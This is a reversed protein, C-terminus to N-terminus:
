NIMIQELSIQVNTLQNSDPYENIVKNYYEKALEFNNDNEAIKGLYFYIDDIFNENTTYNLSNELSIKAETFRNNLYEAKGQNYLSNAAEPYATARLTNYIDIDNDSFGLTDIKIVNSVCGLYDKDALQSVAIQLLEINAQKNEESRLLRNESELAELDTRLKIVEDPTMDTSGTYALLKVNLSEIETEYEENISPIWLAFLSFVAIVVGSMFSFLIKQDIFSTHSKHRRYHPIPPSSDTKREPSLNNQTQKNNRSNRSKSDSINQVREVRQLYKTSSLQEIIQKNTLAQPNRFDKKLVIEIFENARKYNKEDICCLTMLNCADVFEPNNNLAKKLQIIALDDSGTKLYELAKNYMSISDNLQEMKRANKQLFEIYKIAENDDQKFSSSVIWHKLADAIRGMECYVVGLLNRAEINKKDFRLSQELISIAYTLDRQKAFSLGKNYLDISINKTRSFVFMDIGCKKCIHESNEVIHGCNACRM